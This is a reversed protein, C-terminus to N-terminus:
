PQVATNTFKITTKKGTQKASLVVEYRDNAILNISAIIFDEGGFGVTAGERKDRFTLRDPDYKFDATYSAVRRFPKGKTIVGSERPDALEIILQEPDNLPGKVAKLLYVDTKDGPALYRTSVRKNSRQEAQNETKILYNSGSVGVTELSITLYLPSIKTVELKGPGIEQGTAIKLLRGDPTKIWQVPNCFNHPPAQLLLSYRAKTGELVAENEEMNIATLPTVRKGFNQVRMQELETRENAIKFPLYAVAGALGLLVVVLIIKEYHRKFNELPQKFFDM